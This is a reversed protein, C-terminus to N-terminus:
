PPPSPQRASSHLPFRSLLAMSSAITLLFDKLNSSFITGQRHSDPRRQPHIRRPDRGKFCPHHVSATQSTCYTTCSILTNTAFAFAALSKTIHFEHKNTFSLLSARFNPDKPSWFSGLSEIIIEALLRLCHGSPRENMAMWAIM